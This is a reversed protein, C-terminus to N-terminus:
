PLGTFNLLFSFLKEFEDIFYDRMRNDLVFSPPYTFFDLTKIETMCGCNELNQRWVM